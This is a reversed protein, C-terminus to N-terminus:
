TASTWTSEGGVNGSVGVKSAEVDRMDYLRGHQVGAYDGDRRFAASWLIRGASTM